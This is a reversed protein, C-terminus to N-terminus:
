RRAQVVSDESESYASLLDDYGEDDGEVAASERKHKSEKGEASVKRTRPRTKEEGKEGSVKRTRRRPSVPSATITTDFVAARPTVSDAEEPWEVALTNPSPARDTPIPPTKSAERTRLTHLRPPLRKSKVRPMRHPGPAVSSDSTDDNIQIRSISSTKKRVRTPTHEEASVDQIMENSDPIVLSGRQSETGKVRVSAGSNGAPPPTQPVPPSPITASSDISDAQAWGSRSRRPETPPNVDVETNFRRHATPPESATSSTSAQRRSGRAMPSPTKRNIPVVRSGGGQALTEARRPVTLSDTQSMSSLSSHSHRHSPEPRKARVSDAWHKESTASTPTVYNATILSSSNLLLPRPGSKSGASSPSPSGPSRIDLGVLSALSHKRRGGGDEDSIASSESGTPSVHPSRRAEPMWSDRVPKFFAPRAPPSYVQSRDIGPLSSRRGEDVAKPPPSPGLSRRVADNPSLSQRVPLSTYHAPASNPVDGSSRKNWADLAKVRWNTSVKALTAAADSDRLKEAYGWIASARTSQQAPPQSDLDGANVPPSTLPSPSSSRTSPLPSPPPSPVEMASQNTIGKWVTDALRSPLTLRGDSAPPQSRLHDQDASSEESEESTESSDDEEAIPNQSGFSRWMTNKLRTGLGANAPTAYHQEMRRRSALDHALQLVNEIGGVQRLPYNRLLAMGEVFADDLERADFDTSPVIANIESWVNGSKSGRKGLRLLAPRALLLMSACVDILYDLKPTSSRERMPRSFLADWVTFVASLSLTHTLLPTLWRYSYHPLAPDLGKIQLDEALDTDAWSLREGLKRLWINCTEADELDAFESVVTEFLWFTDAEAHALDDPEVEQVLASYLPVLLSAVQPARNAPNLSSHIYLLRLLASAHKPHAGGATYARSALLTTPASSHSSSPSDPVSLSIEPTGLGGLDIHMSDKPKESAETDLRVEPTDSKAPSDPAGELRIEPTGELRIEPMSDPASDSDQNESDKILKLREDLAGACQIKVDDPASTDLPSAVSVDPEDDLRSLLNPPVQALEKSADLLSIDTTSLPSTPPPLSAFPELLRRVLDYYNDRQKRNEQPWSTKNPPLTGLLLKWVRPRVWPPDEPLGHSCLHQLRRMDIDPSTSPDLMESIANVKEVPTLDPKWKVSHAKAIGLLYEDLWSAPPARANLDRIVRTSVYNDRNRIASRAFDPGLRQILMDSVLQLDRSDTHPAAYIISSAAEVIVPGPSANPELEGIRELIIGVHMELTQLLDGYIDERVLKQAKARALADNGQSLLTAIDRRTIQGQYDLKYQIQGLRQATLRLLNKARTSDWSSM